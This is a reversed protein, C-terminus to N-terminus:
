KSYEPAAIKQGNLKITNRPDGAQQQLKISRDIKVARDVKIVNNLKIGDRTPIM